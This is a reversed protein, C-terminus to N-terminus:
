ITSVVNCTCFRDRDALVLATGDPAWSLATIAFDPVPVQVCSAGAATWLFLHDSGTVVALRGQLPNWALSRVPTKHVLVTALKVAAVDWVWVANPMDDARTALWRGDPSWSVIGVGVKPMGKDANPKVVALSYPPEAVVYRTMTRSVPVGATSPAFSLGDAPESVEDDSEMYVIPNGGPSVGSIHPLEAIVKWTLHNMLRVSNDYSALALFQGSPAWAVKKVGLANSYAAYSSLVRGDPSYLAMKYDLAVDWVGIVRDDPSWAIGASDSNGGAPFSKVLEWTDTALINVADKLDPGRTLIALYKGDGSFAAGKSGSHKPHKVYVASRTVLSWITARLGFDCWTLVHRADPAWMAGVLGAPGEDIKCHWDPDDVKWVQVLGRKNMATLVYESDASWELASITDHTTFLQVIQLEESDRIVLRYQAAAAVYRGDPSWKVHGSHKFSDSFDLKM